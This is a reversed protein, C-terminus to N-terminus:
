STLVFLPRYVLFNEVHNLFWASDHLLKQLVIVTAQKAIRARIIETRIIYSGENFVIPKMMMLIASSSSSKVCGGDTVM